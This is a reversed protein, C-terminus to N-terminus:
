ASDGVTVAWIPRLEFSARDGAFFIARLSRAYEIGREDAFADFCGLCVVRSHLEPPVVARWVGDPVHFDFKDARGCAKCRQQM